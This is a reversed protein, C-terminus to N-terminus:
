DRPIRAAAAVTKWKQTESRIFDSTQEPTLYLPEVSMGELQSVFERDGVIKLHMQRLKAQIDPPTKKPVAIGWWTSSVIKPFGAEAFTPTDPLLKLRSTSAVALPRLDGNRIYPGLTTLDNVTMDVTGSMVATTAPAGGKFPVHLINIGGYYKVLEGGMQVITGPGASSFTYKGPAQKALAVLEAFSKVPLTARVVLVHPANAILGITAFDREFDYSVDKMFIQNIGAMTSTTGLVITYGDPEARMAKETGIVGSAGAPNEVIVPQQALASLRKAYLRGVIDAPGGAVTPILLHIARSPYDDAAVASAIGLFLWLLVAAGSRFLHLLDTLSRALQNAKKIVTM